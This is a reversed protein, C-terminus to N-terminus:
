PSPHSSHLLFNSTSPAMGFDDLVQIEPFNHCMIVKVLANHHVCHHVAFGMERAVSSQFAFEKGDSALMFAAQVPM